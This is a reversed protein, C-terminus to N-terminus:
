RGDVHHRGGATIKKRVMIQEQRLFEMQRELWQPSSQGNQLALIQDGLYLAENLDHTVHVMCLPSDRQIRRLEGRLDIRTELDLASFPEDLLLLRPGRALAQCLAGRQREGGSVQGPLKDKLHDIGFTTLLADIKAANTAAYAVNQRITMHPFLSYDQFALGASRRQPPLFIRADSDFWVEEGMRIVGAEPKGLGALLRLLSTKGSGSPGVVCVTEGVRCMLELDLHFNGLKKRLNARLGVTGEM